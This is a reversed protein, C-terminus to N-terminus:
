EKTRDDTDKQEKQVSCLSKVKAEFDNRDGLSANRMKVRYNYVTHVSYDLFDAIKNSDDIGLRILAFIRLTTNLRNRELATIREEPVLLANFEDVFGPFLHMFAADFNAFLEDLEKKKTDTTRTTQYLEDYQKAKVLKNVRKRQEEIKNVYLSCLSLFRGIYEEKVRNSENMKMNSVSLARNTEQLQGNIHRLKNRAKRLYNRSSRVYFFLALVVALMVCAVIVAAVLMINSRSLKEQYNHEIVSLIPLIQGSRVMAGYRSAVNWSYDIYRYARETDEEDSIINALTWLSAQDMTANRVDSIASIALYYKSEDTQEQMNKVIFMFFAATAYEHSWPETGEFWKTYVKEAEAYKKEGYLRLGKWKLYEESNPDAIVFLSDCMANEIKLYKRKLSVIHTYFALEHHVHIMANYYCVLGNPPALRKTNVEALIELAEHYQGIMSCQLALRARTENVLDERGMKEALRGCRTLYYMASDNQFYQYRMFLQKSLSYQEMGTAANSLDERMADLGQEYEHIYQESKNLEKDLVNLLSDINRRAGASNATGAYLILLLILLRM